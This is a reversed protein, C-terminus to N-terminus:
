QMITCPALKYDRHQLSPCLCIRPACQGALSSSKTLELDTLTKAVFCTSQTQPFSVLPQGRVWVRTCTHMWMYMYMCECVSVCVELLRISQKRTTIVPYM